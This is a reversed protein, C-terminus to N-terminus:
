GAHCRGTRQPRARSQLLGPLSLLNTELDVFNWFLTQDLFKRRITGILCEVVPHSTPTYPVTKIEEVDLIRLNGRWRHNEFLPDNDSSLYHPAGQRAVAHNFMKCLAMGDVVGAYVGVGIIRRTFQDMVVLVWHTSLMISECRFLDVSWLSDTAHGIFTLWSPGGGGPSPRFHKSLVRRVVDKDLEV